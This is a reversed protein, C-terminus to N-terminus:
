VELLSSQITQKLWQAMWEVHRYCRRCVNNWIGLSDNMRFVPLTAWVGTCHSTIFQYMIPPLIIGTVMEFGPNKSRKWLYYLRLISDVPVLNMTHRLEWAHSAVWVSVCVHVCICIDHLHCWMRTMSDWIVSLEVTQEVIQEFLSFALDGCWQRETLPICRHGISEGWLLGTVRSANGHRSM